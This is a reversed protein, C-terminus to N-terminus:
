PATVELTPGSYAGDTTVLPSEAGDIRVRVLYTAQAVGRVPFELETATAVGEALPTSEFGYSAAPDGPTVLEDLLLRAQQRAGVDHAFRVRVTANVPGTPENADVLETGELSFPAPDPGPVFSPSLVFAKLNSLDTPITESSGEKAVEHIVQVGHVGALLEAPLPFALRTPTGEIDADEVTVAGIRAKTLDGRLGSGLLVLRDGHVISRGESPPTPADPQSLLRTITPRRLLPVYLKGEHVPLATKTPAQSEILVVTATYLATPRLGTNLSSWLQSTTELDAYHPTIRIQEVQEALDAASLQQFATPLVSANVAGGGLSTRVADRGLVPTDHLIQMGYGLLIQDNLDELGYASLLYHLDLALYPNATRTGDSSRSPLRENAWGSNVSVRYLFLNLRNAPTDDTGGPGFRDPPLSTVAFGGLSGLDANILGDNLRDRLVATVAAIALANSM